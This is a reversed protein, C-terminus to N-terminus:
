QEILSQRIVNSIWYSLWAGLVPQSWNWVIKGLKSWWKLDLLSHHRRSPRGNQEGKGMWVAGMSAMYEYHHSIVEDVIHEEIEGEEDELRVEKWDDRSMIFVQGNRKHLMNAVVVRVGYKEVAAKAKSKLIEEDTELKFSVVYGNPSWDRCLKGLCKPVPDLELLIKGESSQIKHESLAEEPIYFDSVAAALYYLATFKRHREMEQSVSQLTGLYETVSTYHLMFLQHNDLADKHDRMRQILVGDNAV